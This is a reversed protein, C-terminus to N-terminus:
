IRPWEDVPRDRLALYGFDFITDWNPEDVYYTADFIHNAFEYSSTFTFCVLPVCVLVAPESHRRKPPIKNKYAIHEALTQKSSALPPPNANDTREKHAPRTNEVEEDEEKWAPQYGKFPVQQASQIAKESLLAAHQQLWTPESVLIPEQGPNAASFQEGTTKLFLQQAEFWPKWRVMRRYDRMRRRLEEGVAQPQKLSQGPKAGQEVQSALNHHQAPIASVNSAGTTHVSEQMNINCPLTKARRHGLHEKGKMTSEEM